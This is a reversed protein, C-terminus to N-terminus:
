EIYTDSFMGSKMTVQTEIDVINHYKLPKQASNAYLVGEHIQAILADFGDNPHWNALVKERNKQHEIKSSKAYQELFYEFVELFTANPNMVMQNQTYFNRIHLPLLRLWCKVLAANM